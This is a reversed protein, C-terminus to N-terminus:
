TPTLLPASLRHVMDVLDNGRLPKTLVTMGTRAETTSFGDALLIIPKIIRKLAKPVDSEVGLASDDVVACVANVAAHSKAAEPLSAFTEVLYGEVELAFELSRRFAGEAAVILITRAATLVCDRLSAFPVKGM